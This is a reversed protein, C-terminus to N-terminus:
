NQITQLEVSVLLCLTTNIKHSIESRRKQIFTIGLIIFIFGAAFEIVIKIVDDIDVVENVLIQTLGYCTLLIGLLILFMWRKVKTSAKFWELFSKM